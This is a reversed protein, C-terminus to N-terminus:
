RSYKKKRNAPLLLHFNYKCNLMRSLLVLESEYQLKYVCACRVGGRVSMCVCCLALRSFFVHFNSEVGLM